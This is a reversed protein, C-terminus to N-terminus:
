LPRDAPPQAYLEDYLPKYRGAFYYISYAPFFVTIPAGLFGIFYLVSPIGLLVALLIAPVAALPSGGAMKFAVVGAAIALGVPIALIMVTIVLAVAYAVFAGIAMVIKLLIYGIFSGPEAAIRGWLRGWGETCSVGEFMMQPVVFDKTMVMVVTVLIGVLGVAVVAGALQVLTSLIEPGGGGARIVKLLPLGVLYISLVVYPIVVVLRFAFYEFGQDSWRVFGERIRAKDRLVAEYLVFRLVSSIYFFLLSIFVAVGIAGLVIHWHQAIWPSHLGHPFSPPIRHMAGSQGSRHSGGSNSSLEGAFVGLVAIRSWYGLRFPQFLRKRMLSFAPGVCDVCSVGAM